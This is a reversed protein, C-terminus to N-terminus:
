EFPEDDDYVNSRLAMNEAYPNKRTASSRGAPKIQKASSRSPIAPLKTAEEEEFFDDAPQYKPKKDNNKKNAPANDVDDFDFDDDWTPPPM